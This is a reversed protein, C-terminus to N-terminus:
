FNFTAQFQFRRDASSTTFPGGALSTSHGFSPSTLTGVPTSLDADNFLNQAQFGLSVNYKKGSTPPGGWGGGGPGRGGGPGGGGRHEGGGGGGQAANPRSSPGFGWTKVVRLNLTVLSPGTCYNIPVETNDGDTGPTAFTGCGPITKVYGTAIPTAGATAFVARSNFQGIGYPDLGSTINYPNGSQFIVLPSVTFLYPLSFSGYLFLRSRVDFSARGYDAKLDNPVSAFSGIGGTDSQAFNLGYFGGFSSGHFNRVNINLNLQNQNFVGESEYQDDLNAGTDAYNPVNSVFQHVGHIHQYNLSATANRFLQQDAGVNEQITYPARLNDAITTVNLRGATLVCGYPTSGAGSDSGFPNNPSCAALSSAAADTSNLTYSQENTGNNRVTALQNGLGFRDYFIGAGARLVLSKGVGYSTSLRPAWDNHDRIYNQTEYRIGYSFTWNPKIKWDDEAYLGLDATRATVTPHVVQTIDFTALNPAAPPTAGTCASALATYDCISSYIFTGTDGAQSTNTEGTFRLRGGFRIFNKALAISTYNQVEIHNQADQSAGGGSGNGTFAGQVSIQPGTVYPTSDSTPRQYEFRTENIVKDSIIQSDSAQLTLEASNSTYGTAALNSGGIGQNQQANHEYQFTVTLTNKEGLALDIRPRLDWRTQPVFQSFSYGNGAATSFISCGAQGPLCAVGSNQSTAYISPPNIISDSQIQRYSGGVTFSATKSIPGSFQGFSFITQYGPQDANNTFPSGTNFQKINANTQAFLRFKDTGPKTFIEVRGFGARDYEASFPNQNIRIERISSKPPLQGGTFGDIYIQGGNPGASPGALATLESSLEDPDDSLADLDKGKLVTTSANTDPDVSVHNEDATVNVVTQQNQIALKANITQATEGIRVGQRVFSAFGPMTITMSYVGPPVGRLVYNGDSGSQVTYAKGSAATLTVTAGPIEAGDPDAVAGTLVVSGKNAATADIGKSNQPIPSATQAGSQQAWAAANSSLFCVSGLAIALTKTLRPSKPLSSSASLSM